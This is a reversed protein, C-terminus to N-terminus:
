CYCQQIVIGQHVCSSVKGDQFKKKVDGGVGVSTLVSMMSSMNAKHAADTLNLEDNVSM